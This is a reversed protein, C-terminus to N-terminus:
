LFSYHHVCRTSFRKYGSITWRKGSLLLNLSISISCNIFSSQNFAFFYLYCQTTSFYSIESNIFITIWPKVKIRIPCTITLLNSKSKCTRMLQNLTLELQLYTRIDFRTFRMEMEAPVGSNYSICSEQPLSFTSHEIFVRFHQIESWGFIDLVNFIEGKLWKRSGLPWYMPYRREQADGQERKVSAPQLKKTSITKKLM